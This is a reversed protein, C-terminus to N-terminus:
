YVKDSLEGVKKIRCHNHEASVDKINSSYSSYNNKVEYYKLWGHTISNSVVENMDQGEDMLRKLTKLNGQLMGVYYVKSIDRGVEECLRLHDFLLDKQDVTLNNERVFNMILQCKQEYLNQKKPKVNKVLM